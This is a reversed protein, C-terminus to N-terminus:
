LHDHPAKTLCNCTLNYHLLKESDPQQLEVVPQQMDLSDELFELSRSFEAINRQLFPRKILLAGKKIKIYFIIELILKTKVCNM